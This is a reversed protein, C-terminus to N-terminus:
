IKKYKNYFHYVISTIMPFVVLVIIHDEFLQVFMTKGIKSYIYLIILCIFISLMTSFIPIIYKITKLKSDLTDQNSKSNKCKEECTLIDVSEKKRRYNDATNLLQNLISLKYSKYYEANYDNMIKTVKKMFVDMEKLFDDDKNLRNIIESKQGYLSDTRQKFAKMSVECSEKTVDYLRVLNNYVTDQKKSELDGFYDYFYASDNYIDIKIIVENFYQKAQAYPLALSECFDIFNEPKKM